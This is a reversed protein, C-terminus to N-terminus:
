RSIPGIYDTAAVIDDLRVKGLHSPPPDTAHLYAWELVPPPDYDRARGLPSFGGGGGSWM